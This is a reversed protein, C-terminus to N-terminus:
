RYFFFCKLLVGNAVWLSSSGSKPIIVYVSSLNLLNDLYFIIWNDPVQAYDLPSNSCTHWLPRFRDSFHDLLEDRWHVSVAQAATYSPRFGSSRADQLYPHLHLLVNTFDSKEYIPIKHARYFCIYWMLSFIFIFLVYWDKGKRLLVSFNEHHFFLLFPMWLLDLLTVRRTSIFKQHYLSFTM